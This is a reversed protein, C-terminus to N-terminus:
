DYPRHDRRPAPATVVFEGIPAIPSDLPEILKSQSEIAGSQIDRTAVGSLGGNEDCARMPGSMGGNPSRPDSPIASRSELHAAIPSLERSRHPCATPASSSTGLSSARP